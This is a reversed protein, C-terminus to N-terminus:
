WMCAYTSQRHAYKLFLSFITVLKLKGSGRTVKGKESILVQKLRSMYKGDTQMGKTVVRPVTHMTM